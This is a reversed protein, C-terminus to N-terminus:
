PTFTGQFDKPWVVSYRGSTKLRKVVLATSLAGRLKLFAHVRELVPAWAGKPHIFINIRGQGVDHGDVVAFDNQSFAQVLTEEIHMAADFDAMDAMPLQVILQNRPMAGAPRRPADSM